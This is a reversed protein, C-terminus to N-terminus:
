AKIFKGFFRWGAMAGLVAVLVTLGAVIAYGLYTLIKTALGTFQEQSIDGAGGAAQAGAMDMLVLGLAVAAPTFTKVATRAKENRLITQYQKKVIQM